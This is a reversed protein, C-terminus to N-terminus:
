QHAGKQKLLQLAQEKTDGSESFLTLIYPIHVNGVSKDYKSDQILILTPVATIEYKEFAEPDLLIQARIGAKRIELIKKQLEEFSNNPLGRLVFAGGLQELHYSYEKWTEIPTSFSTFVFLNNKLSGESFFLDSSSADFSCKPSSTNKPTNQEVKVGSASFQSFAFTLSVIWKM